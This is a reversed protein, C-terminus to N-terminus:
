TKKAPVPLKFEALIADIKAAKEELAGSPHLGAHRVTGDPAIIAVYPIGMIGYDENFVPQQSFAVPWSMTKAKMFDNMLAMEKEPNGKTDIRGGELGSVFGQLSTVGLVVVDSGKYHEVLKAVNPFSAICPGCWTAWFDLVVVKGRYGSLTKPGEESMWTFNLEPAAKGVLTKQVEKAKAMREMGAIQRDANAAAKSGAHEAKVQDYLKRASATDNLVQAHLSAKMVLIDAADDPATAKHAAYLADFEAMEVKLAEASREGARLKASIRAVLDKLAAAAPSLAPQSTPVPAPGTAAPASATQAFALVPLTLLLLILVPRSRRM